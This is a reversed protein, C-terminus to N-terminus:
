KRQKRASDTNDPADEFDSGPRFAVKRYGSGAKRIIDRWGDSWVVRAEGAVLMWEGTAKPVHSKRATGDEQLTMVFAPAGGERPRGIDWSGVFEMRTADEQAAPSRRAGNQIRYLHSETRLIFANGDVAPSALLPQKTLANQAQVEFKRGPKIITCAADENFLYIRDGAFVPTASYAGALRQKWIIEGTEAVLCTMIGDRNVVYLLDDVLVPTCRAPMSRTAKWVIHSDTVDGSGDHRIAWLEPHDRDIIAFVLGHGAIPRPAISWGQHRVRWLENGGVDYAYVGQGVSSVLQIGQGRPVVGPMGYAKRKHVPVSAYDYSRDTKWVTRGTTRDLAIIYQVDRGDVHVVLKGDVLTPSSAPGANTEHDCKLDRRTWLTDGSDTDLCATGYTGFHVYVRGDEVVPTPTAYTNESSIKQPDAVEFVCRDHIVRGTARDVCVAFLRHGDTSATTLWIQDGFLVPSSWGRDHIFTKWAVNEHDTWHVPLDTTEAHGNGLPGLFQWWTEGASSIDTSLVCLLATVIRM